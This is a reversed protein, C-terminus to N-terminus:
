FQSYKYGNEWSKEVFIVCGLRLKQWLIHLSRQYKDWFIYVSVEDTVYEYKSEFFKPINFIISSVIVPLLYTILRNRIADSDNMAQNYDM